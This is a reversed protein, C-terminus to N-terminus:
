GQIDLPSPRSVCPSSTRPSPPRRFLSDGVFLRMCTMGRTWEAQTAQPGDPSCKPESTCVRRVGRPRGSSVGRPVVPFGGPCGPSVGAVGQIGGPALSVGPVGRPCGTVIPSVGPVGRRRGLVGWPCGPSMWPVSWPCGLSVGPIDRPWEPSARPVGPGGRNCVLSM